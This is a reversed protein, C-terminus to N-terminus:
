EDKLVLGSSCGDAPCRLAHSRIDACRDRRQGCPGQSCPGLRGRESAGKKRREEGEGLRLGDSRDGAHPRAGTQGATQVHPRFHHGPRAREGTPGVSERPSPRGRSLGWSLEPMWASMQTPPAVSRTTLSARGSSSVSPSLAPSLPVSLSSSLPARPPSCSEWLGQPLDSSPAGLPYTPSQLSAPPLPRHPKPIPPQPENRFPVLIQPRCTSLASCILSLTQSTAEGLETDLRHGWSGRAVGPRGQFSASAANGAGSGAQQSSGRGDLRQSACGRRRSARRIAMGSAADRVSKRNERDRAKHGLGGAGWGPQTGM